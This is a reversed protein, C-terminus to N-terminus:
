YLQVCSGLSSVYSGGLMALRCLFIIIARDRFVFCNQRTIVPIRLASSPTIPNTTLETAIAKEISDKQPAVDGGKREPGWGSRVAFGACRGFLRTGSHEM